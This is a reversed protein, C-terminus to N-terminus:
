SASDKYVFCVARRGRVTNVQGTGATIAVGGGTPPAVSQSTLSQIRETAEGLILGDCGLEGARTRLKEVMTSMGGSAPSNQEIEFQGVEVVPREPRREVFVEVTAPDRPGMARPPANLPSYDISHCGVAFLSLLSVLSVFKSQFSM